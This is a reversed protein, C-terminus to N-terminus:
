LARELYRADPLPNYTYAPIEHFGCSHYLALAAQMSDLTDLRMCRYGLLQGEAVIAEVLRRGLGHGRYGPLVTLRKMECVGEELPRLAVCGAPAGAVRALLLAGQPPGYAGPLTALEDEFGQFGLDIGLGDAYARMLGRVAELEEPSQVQLLTIAGDEAM